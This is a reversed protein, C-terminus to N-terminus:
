PSPSNQSHRQEDKKLDARRIARVVSLPDFGELCDVLKDTKPLDYMMSEEFYYKILNAREPEHATLWVDVAKTPFTRNSYAVHCVGRPKLIRGIESMVKVPKLLYQISFSILCADFYDDCYPLSTEKNLDHVLYETLRNNSKLEVENMGLGAVAKYTASEPLHSCYSSMLDIIIGDEPLWEEFYTALTTSAHEDVHILLRPEKYFLTDDSEDIRKLNDSSNPTM